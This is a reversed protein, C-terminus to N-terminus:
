HTASRDETRRMVLAYPVENTIERWHDYDRRHLRFGDLRHLRHRQFEVSALERCENRAANGRDREAIGTM